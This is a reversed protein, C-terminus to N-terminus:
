LITFSDCFKLQLRGVVVSGHAWACGIGAEVRDRPLWERAFM